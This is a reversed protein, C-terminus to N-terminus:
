RCTQGSAIDSETPIAFCGLAQNIDCKSPYCSGRMELLTKVPCHDAALSFIERVKPDIKEITMSSPNKCGNIMYQVCRTM